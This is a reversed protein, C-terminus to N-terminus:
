DSIIIFRETSNVAFHFAIDMNKGRSSDDRDSMHGFCHGYHSVGRAQVRRAEHSIVCYCRRISM